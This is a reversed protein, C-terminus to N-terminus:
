EHAPDDGAPEPHLYLVVDLRETGDAPSEDDRPYESLVDHLRGKLEVAQEVTLRLPFQSIEFVERWGGPLTPFEALARQTHMAYTSAVSQLYTQAADAEADVLAVDDLVIERHAARWWRERANGRETDEEVFGGAALQRLHYSATGSNVGMLEALRTATSPGHKRLLHVLQIRAPHALVRLGKADLAVKSDAM